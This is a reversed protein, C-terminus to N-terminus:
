DIDPDPFKLPEKTTEIDFALVTFQPKEVRQDDREMKVVFNKRVLLHYWFSVRIDCDICVRASYPLDHEFMDEIVEFKNELYQDERVNHKFKRQKENLKQQILGRVKNMKQITPFSLKIFKRQIGSLHNLEDLDLKDM